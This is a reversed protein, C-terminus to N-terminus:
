KISKAMKKIFTFKKGNKKYIHPAEPARPRGLVAEKEEIYLRLQV